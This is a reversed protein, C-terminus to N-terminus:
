SAGHLADCSAGLRLVWEDIEAFKEDAEERAKAYLKPHSIEEVAQQNLEVVEDLLELARNAYGREPQPWAIAQISAFIDRLPELDETPDFTLPLDEDPAREIAAMVATM